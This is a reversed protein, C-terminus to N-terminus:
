SLDSILAPSFWQKNYKSNFVLYSALMAKKSVLTIHSSLQSKNCKKGKINSYFLELRERNAKSILGRSGVEFACFEVSYDLIELDNILREYKDSKRKHAKDISCEFPVTLELIWCRKASKKMIVLDPRDTTVLIDPPITCTTTQGIDCHIDMGDSIVLKTFDHIASLVSDHRWTYRGQELMTPCNNLVHGLTERFGCHQCKDNIRKGWQALNVNTPLTDVISNLLFSLTKRPLNYIISKWSVDNDLQIALRTYAGQKCLDILHDYHTTSFSERIAKIATKKIQANSNDMNSSQLIQDCKTVTSEKRIWKTERQLRTDLAHNVLPDAKLRSSLYAITQCETYTQTVTPIEVLGPVHIIETSACQPLHSWKKLFRHVLADLQKLSTATLTHVTLIFKKSPLLYKSYMKMKYEDRIELGDIHELGEKFHKEIVKLTESQKGSFSISSGLFKHNSNELTDIEHGNLIFTTNTPQGACLSLSICKVPKLKLGMSTTWLEIEKILRQHTRKNRTILNFDDAFPTTAVKQGNLDYGSKTNEILKELIPNFAALFIIPSWPDGQFVGHGFAFAKSNYDKTSVVSTLNKYLGIVYSTVM